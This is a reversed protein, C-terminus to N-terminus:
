ITAGSCGTTQVAALGEKYDLDIEAVKSSIEDEAKVHVIGDTDYAYTVRIRPERPLRIPLDSLTVEGVVHCDQPLTGEEGQVVVVRAGTQDDEKFAFRDYREAPLPTNAPIIVRNHEISTISDIALCGLSHATVDTTSVEPAPLEKGGVVIREGKDALMKAAYIAAGKAVALDPEVDLKPKMGSLRELQEAVAPIRTSGGVLVISTVDKWELTAAGRAKECREITEDLYPAIMKEFEQRTLELVVQNGHLGLSVVAKQRVSLSRKAQECRERLEFFFGPEEQPNPKVGHQTEFEALVHRALEDDFDSGGLNANGDTSLTDIKGSEVSLFTVDFTGGGLDYVMVVQDKRKDIAYAIGAATPENLVALVNLGARKGAEVTARRQKENFYAPVTIVVDTIEQGLRTGCDQKLKSLVCAALDAADREVGDKGSFIKSDSGMQPKFRRALYEPAMPAGRIAEKGVVIEDILVLVASPTTYEGERNAVVVPKSAEDLVALESVTTGLDIGVPPKGESTAM